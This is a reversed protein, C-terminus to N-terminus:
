KNVGTGYGIAYAAIFLWIQALASLLFANPELIFFLAINTLAPVGFLALSVAFTIPNM